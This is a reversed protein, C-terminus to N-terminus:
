DHVAEGHDGGDHIPCRGAIEIRGEKACPVGPGPVTVSQPQNPRTAHDCEGVSERWDLDSAAGYYSPLPKRM